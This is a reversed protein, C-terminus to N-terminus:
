KIRDIEEQSVISFTDSDDATPNQSNNLAPLAPDAAPKSRSVTRQKGDVVLDDADLPNPSARDSRPPQNGAAAAGQYPNSNPSIALLKNSIILLEVIWHQLNNGEFRKKTADGSEEKSHENLSASSSSNRIHATNAYIHDTFSENLNSNLKEARVEFKVDTHADEDEADDESATIRTLSSKSDERIEDSHNPRSDSLHGNNDNATTRTTM